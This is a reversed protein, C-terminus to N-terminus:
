NRRYKILERDLRHTRRTILGVCIDSADGFDRSVRGFVTGTLFDRGAGGVRERCLECLEDIVRYRNTISQVIEVYVLNSFTCCEKM